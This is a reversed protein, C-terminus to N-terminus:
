TERDTVEMCKEKSYTGCASDTERDEDTLILTEKHYM